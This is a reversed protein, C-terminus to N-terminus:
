GRGVRDTVPLTKRTAYRDLLRPVALAFAVGGVLLGIAWLAGVYAWIVWVFTCYALGAFALMLDMLVGTLFDLRLRIETADPLMTTEDGTWHRM